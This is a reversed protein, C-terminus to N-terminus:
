SSKQSSQSEADDRLDRLAMEMSRTINPKDMVLPAFIIAGGILCLFIALVVALIWCTESPAIVYDLVVRYGEDSKTIKGTITVKSLFSPLSSKPAVHINGRRDMEVEGLNDLSRKINRSMAESDIDTKIVVRESGNFM